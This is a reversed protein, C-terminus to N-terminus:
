DVTSPEPDHFCLVMAAVDAVFVAFFLIVAPLGRSAWLHAFWRIEPIFGFAVVVLLAMTVVLAWRVMYVKQHTGAIWVFTLAALICGAICFALQPNWFLSLKHGTENYAFEATALLLINGAVAAATRANISTVSLM